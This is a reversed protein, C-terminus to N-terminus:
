WEGVVNDDLVATFTNLGDYDGSIVVPVDIGWYLDDDVDVGSTPRPIVTDVSTQSSSAINIGAGYTFGALSYEQNAAAIYDPGVGNRLMDEGILDTDLPSNGANVITTTANDAGTDTGAVLSGYDILAQSVEIATSM